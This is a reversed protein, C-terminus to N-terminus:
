PAKVSEMWDAVQQAQAALRRFVAPDDEGELLMARLSVATEAALEIGGTRTNVQGSLSWPGIPAAYHTVYLVANGADDENVLYDSSPHHDVVCWTPCHPLQLTQGTSQASM